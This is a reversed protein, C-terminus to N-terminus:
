NKMSHRRNPPLDSWKLKTTKYRGTSDSTKGAIGRDPAADSVCLLAVASIYVGLKLRPDGGKTSVNAALMLLAPLFAYPLFTRCAFEWQKEPIPASTDVQLRLVAWRAAVAMVATGMSAFTWTVDLITAQEYTGNQMQYAYISDGLIMMAMSVIGLRVVPRSISDRFQFWLMLLAAALILDSTPYLTTVVREALGVGNNLIAPGIRYYWNFAFIGALAILGDMLARSKSAKSASKLPLMKIALAILPYAALFPIDAWSAAPVEKHEIHDIYWWCCEGLPYGLMAAGLLWSAALPFKGAAPAACGNLYCGGVGQEESRSPHM